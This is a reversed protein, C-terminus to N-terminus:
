KYTHNLFGTKSKPKKLVATSSIIMCEKKAKKLM